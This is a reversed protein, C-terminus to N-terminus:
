RALLVHYFHYPAGAFDSCQVCAQLATYAESSAPDQEFTTEDMDNSTSGPADYFQQGDDFRVLIGGDICQGANSGSATSSGTDLPTGSQQNLANIKDCFAASVNPLVAVLDPRDSGVGPVQTGGYFEWPSGDNIGNPPDRYLAGGGDRHFVQNTPDADASLDGYDDNKPNAFRIDSESYGNQLIYNVGREVESVYRQVETARITLTEKDINAGEPNNSQQIAVTLLGILAVALFIIFLMNGRESSRTQDIPCPYSLPTQKM